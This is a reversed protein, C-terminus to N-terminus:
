GAAGPPVRVALAAVMMGLVYLTVGTGNYWPALARPDRLLRLMAGLQALVLGAVLAAHWGQGWAALLAVVILQPAIMVLCAVRAARAPGLQAPLSRIGMKLDGDIAKFDNLTMIGHAGISYLAALLLVNGPPLAGGLLVAAGSVWALGEYCMGVAANGWWGNRKLRLPPASYAWALALGLATAAMVWTGLLTGWLLALASWVLAFYFGWYGPVRGSPIPRQPENIADVDRDYWDNVVQSAGCVMPGVLIVGFLLLLPQELLPRSSSVAGCLFAWMPPFWTIPKLLQLLASAEPRASGPIDLATRQM